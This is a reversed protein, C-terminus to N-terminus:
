RFWLHVINSGCRVSSVVYTTIAKGRFTTYWAFYLWVESVVCTILKCHVSVYPNNKNMLPRHSRTENEITFVLLQVHLQSNDTSLNMGNPKISNLCGDSFCDDFTALMLYCLLIGTGMWQQISLWAKDLILYMRDNGQLRKPIALAM